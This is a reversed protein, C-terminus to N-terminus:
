RLTIQSKQTNQKTKIEPMKPTVDLLDNIEWAQVM